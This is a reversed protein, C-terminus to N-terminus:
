KGKVLGQGPVYSWETPNVSASPTAAADPTTNITRVDSPNKKNIALIATTEGAQGKIVQYDYSNGLNAIQADIQRIQADTLRGQRAERALDAQLRKDDMELRREGQAVQAESLEFRREELGATRAQQAVQMAENTYGMRALENAFESMGQPSNLNKGAMAQQIQTAKMLMPDQNGFLSKAGQGALDSFSLGAQYLPNFIGLSQGAASQSARRASNEQTQQQIRKEMVDLPSMGFISTAM